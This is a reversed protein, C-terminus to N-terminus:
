RLVRGKWLRPRGYRETYRRLERRASCRTSCTRSITSLSPLGARRRRKQAEERGVGCESCAWWEGRPPQPEALRPRRQHAYM